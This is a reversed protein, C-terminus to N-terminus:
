AERSLGWPYCNSDAQWRCLMKPVGVVTGTWNWNASLHYHSPNWLREALSTQRGPLPELGDVVKVTIIRATLCALHQYWPAKEGVRLRM